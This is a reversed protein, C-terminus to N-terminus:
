IYNNRWTCGLAKTPERTCPESSCVADSDRETDSDRKTSANANSAVNLSLSQKPNRWWKSWWCCLHIRLRLPEGHRCWFRNLTTSLASQSVWNGIKGDENITAALVESYESGSAPSGPREYIGGLVTLKGDHIVVRHYHRGGPLGSLGPLSTTEMWPELSGDDPDVKAVRVTSLSSSNFGGTVYIYGNHAVVAHRRLAVPLDNVAELTWPGLGSATIKAYRIDSLPANGNWGGIVYLYDNM